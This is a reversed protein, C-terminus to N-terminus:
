WQEGTTDPAARAQTAPVSSSETRFRVISVVVVVLYGMSDNTSAVCSSADLASVLRRCCSSPLTAHHHLLSRPRSLCSSNSTWASVTRNRSEDLRLLSRAAILMPSDRLTHSPHYTTHQRRCHTHKHQKEYMEDNVKMEM